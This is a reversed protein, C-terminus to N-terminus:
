QRKHVILGSMGLAGEVRHLGRTGTPALRIPTMSLFLVDFDSRLLQVAHQCRSSFEQRSNHLMFDDELICVLEARSDLAVQVAQLHALTCGKYSPTDRTAPVGPVRRINSTSVNLSALVERIQRDRDPRTDLNIYVVLGVQDM